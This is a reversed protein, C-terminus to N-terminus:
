GPASQLRQSDQMAYHHLIQLYCSITHVSQNLLELSHIYHCIALNRWSTLNWVHLIEHKFPQLLPIVYVKCNCAEQTRIRVLWLKDTIVWGYKASLVWQTNDTEEKSLAVSEFILEHLIIKKSAARCFVQSMHSKKFARIDPSLSCARYLIEQHFTEGVQRLCETSSSATCFHAACM